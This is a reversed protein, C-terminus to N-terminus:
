NALSVFFFSTGLDEQQILNYRKLIIDTQRYAHAFSFFLVAKENISNLIAEHVEINIM